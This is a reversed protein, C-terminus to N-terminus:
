QRSGVLQCWTLLQCCLKCAIRPKGGRTGNCGHSATTLQVPASSHLSDRGSHRAWLAVARCCRQLEVHLRKRMLWCLRPLMPCGRRPMLMLM